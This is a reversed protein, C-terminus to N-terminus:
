LAVPGIIEPYETYWHASFLKPYFQIIKKRTGGGDTTHIFGNGYRLKYIMAKFAELVQV